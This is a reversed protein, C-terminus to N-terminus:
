LWFTLGIMPGHMRGDFGYRGSGTGTVYELDYVRWAFRLSLLDIPRYDLGGTVSWTMSPEAEGRQFGGVDGRAVLSVQPHLKAYIRWGLMFQAFFGKGGFGSPVTASTPVELTEKLWNLRVGTQVDFGIARRFGEGSAEGLPIEHRGAFLLDTYFQRFELRVPSMVLTTDGGLGVYNIDVIAGYRNGYWAESRLAVAGEFASFVESPDPNIDVSAAGLTGVGELWAGLFLYPTIEGHWDSSAEPTPVPAEVAASSTDPASYTEPASYTDPASLDLEQANALSAGLLMATICCASTLLRNM